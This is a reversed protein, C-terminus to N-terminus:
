RIARGTQHVEMQALRPINLRLNAAIKNLVEARHRVDDRSWIGSEFTSHAIHVIIATTLQCIQAWFYCLLLSIEFTGARNVYEEDASIVDCLHQSTSPSTVAFTNKMLHEPTEFSGNLFPGYLKNFESFHRGVMLFPKQKKPFSLRCKNLM